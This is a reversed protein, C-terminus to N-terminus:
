PKNRGRAHHFKRFVIVAAVVGAAIAVTVRPEDSKGFCSPLQPGAVGPPLCTTPPNRTPVPISQAVAAGALILILILRKM